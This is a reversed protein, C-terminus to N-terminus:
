LQKIGDLTAMHKYEFTVTPPALQSLPFRVSCEMNMRSLDYPKTATLADAQCLVRQRQNLTQCQTHGRYPFSVLTQANQQTLRQSIQQDM